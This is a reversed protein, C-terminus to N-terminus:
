KVIVKINYRQTVSEIASIINEEWAKREDDNLESDVLVTVVANPGDIEVNTVTVYPMKEAAQIIIQKDKERKNFSDGSEDIVRPEKSDIQVYGEDTTKQNLSPSPQDTPERQLLEGYNAGCAATLLLLSFVSSILIYKM